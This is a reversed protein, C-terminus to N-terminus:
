LQYLASQSTLCLLIFIQLRGLFRGMLMFPPMIKRFLYNILDCVMMIASHVLHLFVSHRTLEGNGIKVMSILIQRNYMLTNHDHIHAHLVYDVMNFPHFLIYLFCTVCMFVFVLFSVFSFLISCFVHETM